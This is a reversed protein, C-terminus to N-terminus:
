LGTKKGPDIGVFLTSMDLTRKEEETTILVSEQIFTSHGGQIQYM